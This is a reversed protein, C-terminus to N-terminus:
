VAPRERQLWHARSGSATWIPFAGPVGLVGPDPSDFFGSGSSESDPGQRERREQRKGSRTSSRHVRAAAPHVRDRRRTGQPLPGRALRAERRSVSGSSSVFNWWIHREARAAARRRSCPARRSRGVVAVRRRGPAAGADRRARLRQGACEVAGEVVYVAREEHEGDVAVRAGPALQRRCVADALADGRPATAGFASGAIVRLTAGAVDCWRCRRWPTTSSARSRRRAAGDAAGGVNCATCAGGHRPTHRRRASPISSAAGRADDLERRGAPDAPALRPQRSAPDRGRVPLDGDRARHAPAPARGHGPRASVDVPGMHDFFIFPGVRQRPLAPLVRRVEFGGLDRTRGGITQEIAGSSDRAADSMWGIGDPHDRGHAREPLRAGSAHNGGRQEDRVSRLARDARQASVGALLLLRAPPRRWSLRVADGEGLVALQGDRM